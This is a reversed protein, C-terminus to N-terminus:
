AARVLDQDGQGNIKNEHSRKRGPRDSVSQALGVGMIVAFIVSVAPIQLSFDFFSHVGVLAAAAVATVSYVRRRHRRLAGRGCQFVIWTLGLVWAVAAPLGLGAALELYDNHARDVIYPAFQDAYLYYADHYAGLGIGTLPHDHIAQEAAAWMVPRFETVGRTEVLNDFRAGVTSGNLVFLTFIATSAALGAALTWAMTQRRAAFMVAFGFAVLMGVFTAILGARSDAAVLASFLVLAGLLWPAGRGFIFQLVTRILPRWGRWSIIAHTSAESVLAIAVLFLMGAITAFSNKAVLGGTVDRGYLPPVGELLTIQSTGLASLVIGYIAYAVGVVFLAIFLRRANQHKIALVLALWGIACYSLLKMMETLTDYPSLSIAGPTNRGLADRPVQWMSHHLHSPMWSASQLWAWVLVFAFAIAPIATRRFAAATTQMDELGSPLWVLWNTAVLLVLLSWAWPRASGLPFQVWAIIGILLWLAAQESITAWLPRAPASSARDEVSADDNTITTPASSM